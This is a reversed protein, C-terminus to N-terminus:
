LMMWWNCDANRDAATLAQRGLRFEVLHRRLRRHNARGATAAVDGTRAAGQRPCHRFKAPLSTGM